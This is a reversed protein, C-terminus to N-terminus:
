PKGGLSPFVVGSTAPGHWEQGIENAEAGVAPISDDSGGVTSGGSPPAAVGAGAEAGAVDAAGAM